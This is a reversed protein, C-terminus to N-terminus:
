FLQDAAGDASGAEGGAALSDSSKSPVNEERFTEFIADTQGSGALLGTAPDIRVTVLGEPPEQKQEQVGQLAVAMYDIWMPLAARGGTEGRGLPELKDFGVWATTVLAHNFGSFWADKQDNTTGTKGALDTRGLVRAKRGTGRQIVDRMMSTMLWVNQPTLVRPALNLQEEGTVNIADLAEPCQPCAIAPDATFVVEGLADYISHIFYPEVRYGGNALVTYAKAMQMPTVTASGLALTLDKPLESANFGFHEAYDAAYSAGIARLIRISVLNRSRYLAERLRTPGFFEGSYNEPRWTSELKPDDFVVPADNIMSAPTFGKELAASYIVPKFSSGPQRKAQTVRNFKSRKFDFGGVLAMIAGDTPRLSVLAGEVRPLQELMWSGDDQQKIRVVDGVTLIDAAQKPSKGMRNVSKYPRAWSMGEWPISITVQDGLLLEATQEGLATVLGAQLGGRVPFDKLLAPQVGPDHEALDFHAEAGRYGHRRSYDLLDKHLAANAATQRKVDLTTIVEFGSAYVSTGYRKVLERRVMETVYAASVEVKVKHLAADDPEAVALEWAAQDIYGLQHMRGLIYNRRDVTAEPENVPNIRSPAKPLAAITAMQALSLENISKGYYVQAAAEIGYAHHGLYIKNLYLELIEDKSLSGEIRLALLIETLKRWYTKETSLFFNRAVQMTITSAGRRKRGTRVLEFAASMLGPIDVGSHEYFHDDEAALFANILEPSVEEINVPTRRKDGFEALLRRDRTYIRLPEQLQVDRLVETSPLQPEIRIYLFVALVASATIGTFLLFLLFGLIRRLFM